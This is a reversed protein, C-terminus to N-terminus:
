FFNKLKLEFVAGSALFHVKTDLQLEIQLKKMAMGQGGTYAIDRRVGGAEKEFYRRVVWDVFRSAFDDGYEEGTFSKKPKTIKAGYGNDIVALVLRENVQDMFLIIKIGPFRTVYKKQVFAAHSFSDIANQLADKVVGKITREDGATIGIPAILQDYVPPLIVQDSLSDSQESKSLTHWESFKPDNFLISFQGVISIDRKRTGREQLYMKFVHNLEALTLDKKERNEELLFDESQCIVPGEKLSRGRSDHKKKEKVKGDIGQHTM